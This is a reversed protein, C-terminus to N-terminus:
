AGTQGLVESFFRSAPLRFGAANPHGGGGYRAAIAAVDVKGKARLSAKVEGDAAYQWILGFSGSREALVNGLESAFLVSANIALGSIALWTNEGDSITPQGHRVAQLADVPEGRVTAPISLNGDALRAVERQFFREVGQGVAIFERYRPAERDPMAAVLSQWGTFEFAEMRLSRCFARTDPLTFRWLDQDEIHLLPLPTPQEPHFFEWALRAGSKDLDFMVRLPLIPDAYVKRGRSDDSLLEAWPQMASAHHDIQTVARALRAMNRLQEPPFSFDLVFVEHEAIQVMDWAEGHHMARYTASDGYRCWASYAAGFGDLCDAHYLITVPVQPM